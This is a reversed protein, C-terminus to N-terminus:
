APLKDGKLSNCRRHAIQVNDWTHSGGKAMPIIHDLSPYLNGCVVTGDIIKFDNTDCKEGCLACTLGFRKIVEDSLSTNYKDAITTQEIGSLYMETMDKVFAPEIKM